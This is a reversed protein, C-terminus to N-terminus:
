ECCVLLLSISVKSPSHAKSLSLLTLTSANEANGMGHKYGLLIQAFEGRAHPKEPLTVGIAVVLADVQRMLWTMFECTMAHHPFARLGFLVGNVDRLETPGRM